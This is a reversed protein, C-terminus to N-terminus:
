YAVVRPDLGLSLAYRPPCLAPACDQQWQCDSAHPCDFERPTRTERTARVPGLQLTFGGQERVEEAQGIACVCANCHDGHWWGCESRQCDANKEGTWPSGEQAFLPCMTAPCKPTM